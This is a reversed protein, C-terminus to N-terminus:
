KGKTLNNDFIKIGFIEEIKCKHLEPIRCLGYKWNYVTRRTVLCGDVIKDIAVTAENVSLSTLFESLAISDKTQKVMTIKVNILYNNYKVGCIYM